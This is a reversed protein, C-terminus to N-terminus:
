EVTDDIGKKPREISEDDQFRSRYGRCRGQGRNGRGQGSGNRLGRGAYKRNNEDGCPGYGGGTQSGKGDPGTGDYGPMKTVLVEAVVKVEVLVKELLPNQEKAIEWKDELEQDKEKQVQEM